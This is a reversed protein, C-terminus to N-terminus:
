HLVVYDLSSFDAHCLLHLEPLSIKARATLDCFCLFLLNKTHLM